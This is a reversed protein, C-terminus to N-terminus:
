PSCTLSPRAKVKGGRNEFGVSESASMESTKQTFRSPLSLGKGGGVAGVSDPRSKLVSQWGEVGGKQRKGM